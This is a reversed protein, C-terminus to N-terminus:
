VQINIINNEQFIDNLYKLLGSDYTSTTSAIRITNEKSYSQLSFIISM